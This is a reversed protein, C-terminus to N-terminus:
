PLAFCPRATLKAFVSRLVHHVILHTDACPGPPLANIAKVPPRRTHAIHTSTSRPRPAALAASLEPRHGIRPPWYVRLTVPVNRGEPSPRSYPPQAM